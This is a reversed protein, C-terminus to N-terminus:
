RGPTRLPEQTFCLCRATGLREHHAAPRRGLASTGLTQQECPGPRVPAELGGAADGEHEGMALGLVDPSLELREDQRRSSAALANAAQCRLHPGDHGEVARGSSGHAVRDEAGQCRRLGGRSSSAAPLGGRM